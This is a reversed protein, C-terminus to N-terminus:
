GAGDARRGDPDVPEDPRRAALTSIDDECWGMRSTAASEGRGPYGILPNRIITRLFGVVSV